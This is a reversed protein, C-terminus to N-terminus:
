GRGMECYLAFKNLIRMQGPTRCAIELLQKGAVVIAVSRARSTAVNLRNPSFLFETGRPADAISSAAMSYISVAAEQGQFNDVTGIRAEALDRHRRLTDLQANYPSVVLIDKLGLIRKAEPGGAGVPQWWVSGSSLERVIQAVVDAEEPSRNSNGYHDVCVLHLGPEDFAGAGTIAQAELGPRSRLRGEYFAESTYRCIAPHLRWTEDLFIGRDPAITAEGDLLHALASGELGEPHSGKVPQDLQCPDGVLVLNRAALSAALVNVLTMQGAEDVFLYDLKQEMDERAWLWATGGAVVSTSRLLDGRTKGSNVVCGVGAEPESIKDKGGLHLCSLDVGEERGAQVVGGLLNHIVKHSNSTIGVRKGEAVLRAIMRAATYTKGTGPPGQLPLVGGAMEAAVRCSAAVPLEGGRRLGEGPSIGSALRPRERQLLDRTASPAAELGGDAVRVGLRLLAAALAKDDVLDFAFVSGPHSMSAARTKKIEVACGEYDVATVKGVPEGDTDRVSAGRRIDCPQERFTYRHTPTQGPGDADGAFELGEISGPDRERESTDMEQRAFFEWWEAKNERRHWDLAHALIWRAQEGPTRDFPSSSVGELIRAKLALIERTREDPEPPPGDAEPAPRLVEKGQALRQERLAELWDRLHGTALCDERNYDLVVALPGADEDADLEGLELAREVYTRARSADELACQRTFGALAELDKLSYREVGVRLAQVLVAHLDVFIGARLMSDIEDERTGHRGMLRKLAAPEYATFHYVHFDPDRSWRAMMDDVFDEFARKEDAAALAWRSEFRGATDTWGLLYERGGIGAFADGEIDFFIDGPSPAPLRELGLGPGPDLFEWGPAGAQRAEVQMRAQERVREMSARTGRRTPRRIPLPLSALEGVSAIGWEELERRQDARIGAVLSLHDDDRRQRNCEPRWSCVDCHECPEPYTAGRATESALFAELGQKRQRFYALYDAVRYSEPEFDRGPVVVHTREPMRGQIAAVLESYLCLQLITGARTDQSLKTDVVEYSYAGLDSPTAVKLLVDARGQWTEAALSAQVIVEVGDRMAEVTAAVGTEEGDGVGGSRVDRGQQRLHELYAEEHRRGREALAERQPNYGHPFSRRGELVEFGLSTKHVCELHDALDTASLCTQNEDKRM